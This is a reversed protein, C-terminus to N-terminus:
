GTANSGSILGSSRSPSQKSSVFNPPALFPCPFPGLKAPRGLSDSDFSASVKEAALERRVTAKAATWNRDVNHKWVGILWVLFGALAAWGAPNLFGFLTGMFYASSTSGLLLLTQTYTTHLGIYAPSLYVRLDPPLYKAVLSFPFPWTSTPDGPVEFVGAGRRPGRRGETGMSADMKNVELVDQTTLPVLPRTTTTTTDMSPRATANASAEGATASVAVKRQGTEGFDSSIANTETIESAM